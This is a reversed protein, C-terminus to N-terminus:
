DRQQRERMGGVLCAAGADLSRHGVAASGSSGGKLLLQDPGQQFRSQGSVDQDLGNPVQLPVPHTSAGLSSLSPISLAGLFSFHIEWRRYESLQLLKEWLLRGFQPSFYVLEQLLYIGNNKLALCPRPDASSCPSSVLFPRLFLNLHPGADRCIRKWASATRQDWTDLPPESGGTLVRVESCLRDAEGAEDCPRMMVESGLTM